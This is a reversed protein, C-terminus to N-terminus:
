KEGLKALIAKASEDGQESAIRYWKVAERDDKGVGLGNAYMWGLNTQALALGQAAAKRYWKVSEREDKSIGLGNSYM